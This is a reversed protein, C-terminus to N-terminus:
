STNKIYCFLDSLYRSVKDRQKDLTYLTKYIINM